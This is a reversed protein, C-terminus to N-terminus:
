PLVVGVPLRASVAGTTNHGSEGEEVVLSRPEFEKRCSLWLVFAFLLATPRIFRDSVNSVPVPVPVPLPVPLRGGKALTGEVGVLYM